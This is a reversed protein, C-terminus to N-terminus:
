RHWDQLMDGEESYDDLFICVFGTVVYSMYFKKKSSLKIENM